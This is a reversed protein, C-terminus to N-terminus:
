CVKKWCGFFVVDIHVIFSYTDKQLNCTNYIKEFLHNRIVIIIEGLNISIIITPLDQATHYHQFPSMM